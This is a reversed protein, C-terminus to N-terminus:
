IIFTFFDKVLLLIMLGFLLILGIFSVINKVKSPIEKHFIGEVTLVLLQWGDLGPFPLLNIIALNVSIMAWLRLFTNFGYNTLANTSQFGIAIIGGVQDRAESSVFSSGLGKFIAISSEGFDIFSNGVAKGFSLRYSEKYFSAGLDGFIFKEEENKIVNTTITYSNGKENYLINIKGDDSLGGYKTLSLNFTLSKVTETAIIPNSLEGKDSMTTYLELCTNWSLNNYGQIKTGNLVVVVTSNPTGDNYSVTGQLDLVFVSQGSVEEFYIPIIIENTQDNKIVTQDNQVAQYVISSDNVTLSAYNGYLATQPFCANSIFFILLGLIANMVVGAVLIIARKWKKIADLSRSPDVTTGEPVEVDEGYMSVYGGFPIWRLSFTTEGKKRKFSFIKPGFGISYEFCYVKFIKAATLHGAEHICILISLCLIFLLIYLIPM